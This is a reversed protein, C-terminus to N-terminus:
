SKYFTSALGKVGEETTFISGALPENAKQTDTLGINATTIFLISFDDGGFACSTVQSVPLDIRQIITQSVPDIRIVSSAGWLAVWLAGEADITMGDPYGDEEGISLLIRRNSIVGTSLDYDFADVSRKGTDIYYFTDHAQNWVLGNSCAVDILKREVQSDADLCYLSGATGQGDIAMTGAWFCGRPDIKGDNFRNGAIEAEPDHIATVIETQLHLRAFGDGSALLIQEPDDSLALTGVSTALKIFSHHGTKMDMWLVKGQMIDVWYLRNLRHDWLPSEGLETISQEIPTISSHNLVNKM